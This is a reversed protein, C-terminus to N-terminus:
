QKPELRGLSVIHAIAWCRGSGALLQACRQLLALFNQGGGNLALPRPQPLNLLQSLGLLQFV